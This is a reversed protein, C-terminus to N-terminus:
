LMSDSSTLRMALRALTHHLTPTVRRGGSQTISTINTIDNAPANSKSDTDGTDRTAAHCKSVLKHSYKRRVVVAVYRYELLYQHINPQVLVLV